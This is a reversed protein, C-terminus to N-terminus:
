VLTKLSPNNSLDINKLHNNNCELSSIQPSKSLDLHSLQNNNCSLIKLKNKQGLILTDLKNENCSLYYLNKNKSLDLTSLENRDCWLEKLKTFHEIGNLSKISEGLIYLLEINEIDATIIKGDLISDHGLEILAKEFNTDAIITTQGLITNTFFFFVLLLRM